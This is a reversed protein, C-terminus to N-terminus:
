EVVDTLIVYKPAHYCICIGYLELFTAQWVCVEEDYEVSFVLRPSRLVDVPEYTGFKWVRVIGRGQLQVISDDPMHPM